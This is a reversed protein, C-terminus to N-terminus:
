RPSKKKSPAGERRVVYDGLVLMDLEMALFSRIADQPTCVIPEDADNFSTNLLVPVGTQQRFARILDYLRPNQDHSVTQPRASGDAHVVAPVISRKELRVQVAFLMFPSSTNMRFFDPASEELVVPALPRWHERRKIRNVRDRMEVSRPDALISRNGLARPGLEMRGQFWGIVEGAALRQAVETSIDPALWFAVRQDNRLAVEIESASFDPGLYPNVLGTRDLEGNEAACQLAAGVSTGADSAAPFIWISDAVGSTLLGGNSSCNLMVGGALCLNRNQTAEIGSRVVNAIAVEL